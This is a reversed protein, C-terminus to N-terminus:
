KMEKGIFYKGIQFIRKIEIEKYHSNDIILKKTKDLLKKFQECLYDYGDFKGQWIITNPLITKIVDRIPEVVAQIDKEKYRIQRICTGDPNIQITKFHPKNFFLGTIAKIDIEKEFDYREYLREKAHDTIKM